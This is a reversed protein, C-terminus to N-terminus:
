TLYNILIIELDKSRKVETFTERVMGTDSSDTIYRIHAEYPALALALALDPIVQGGTTEAKGNNLIIVKLPIGRLKAEMLGLHGAAIFSFDGTVAWVDRYGALWAGIALSTSGGMYTVIDICNFPEAAFQSSIGTDGTVIEGRFKKFIEFVPVYAEVAKKWNDSTDRPIVPMPPRPISRWEICDRKAKFIKRQWPNFLPSLIHQLPDRHYVSEVPASHFPIFETERKMAEADIILAYPLKSEESLEFAQHVDEYITIPSTTYSAIGIGDLFPKADIISDSHTGCHDESILLVLGANIGCLLSDSLTNAAKMVGHTKFLCVSRAGCVSAGHAITYAVEENFSIFIPEDSLKELARYVASGGYGPVYTCVKVEADALARAIADSVVM